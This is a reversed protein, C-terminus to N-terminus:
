GLAMDRVGPQDQLFRIHSPTTTSPRPVCLSRPEQCTDFLRCRFVLSTIYVMVRVGQDKYGLGQVRSGPGQCRFGSVQLGLGSVGVGCESGFGLGWAGYGSACRQPVQYAVPNYHYSTTCVFVDNVSMISTLM